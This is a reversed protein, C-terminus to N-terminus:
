TRTSRLKVPISRRNSANTNNKGATAKASSSVTASFAKLEKRQFEGKCYNEHNHVLVHEIATPNALLVVDYGPMSLSVVGGHSEVTREVFGLPDRTYGYAHGVLPLGDPSPAERADTM